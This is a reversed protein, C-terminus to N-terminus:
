KKIKRFFISFKDIQIPELLIEEQVNKRSEAIADIIRADEVDESKMLSLDVISKNTGNGFKPISWM